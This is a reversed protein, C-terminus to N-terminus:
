RGACSRCVYADAGDPFARPRPVMVGCRRCAVLDIARPAPRRPGVEGRMAKQVLRVLLFLFRIALLILIALLVLRLLV